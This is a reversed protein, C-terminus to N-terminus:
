ILWNWPMVDLLDEKSELKGLWAKHIYQGYEDVIPM